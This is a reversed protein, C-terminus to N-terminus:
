PLVHPVSIVVTNPRELLLRRIRNATHNHLIRALLGRTVVMPLVVTITEDAGSQALDDVYARLPSVIARYPSEIVRLPMHNGWAEWEQRVRERDEEAAIHVGVVKGRILSGAYALTDLGAQNLAAVSVLAVHHDAVADRNLGPAINAVAVGRGLMSLRLRRQAFYRRWGRPAAEVLVTVRQNPGDALLRDVTGLLTKLTGSAEVPIVESDSLNSDIASTEAGPSEEGLSMVRGPHLTKLYALADPRAGDVGGAIILTHRIAAPSIGPRPLLAKGSRRYHARIRFFVFTMLPVLLVVLWAGYIFKTVATILLVVFTLAAGTGNLLIGKRWGPERRKWWRRVMGSQSLTFSAFVGIVYLNVLAEFSGQFVLILVLALLTLVLIGNSYSLRDGRQRFQHPLFNDRAMFFALRPFDSYATNAALMLILATTIQVYYFGFGTGLTAQNLKSILTPSADGPNPVLGYLHVLITIGIFMSIALFGLTTITTRANRWEPAEFAPVGDSIAEVGTLATCGSAFARLVLFVTLAETGHVVTVSPAVHAGNHIFKIIGALIMAYVGVIFLYPPVMFITGSERIGRLNGFLILVVFLVDLLVDYKGLGTAMSTLAAVGTVVSVAVTLVYDIMLSSGAIVGALAGLNDSAVIYSGGGKPYMKITQRYSLIVMAFLVSIAAAIALSIGFNNTGAALLVALMAGTAYAVSSIADSSLVALAKVKTLREHALRENSLPDGVVLTKVRVALLGLPGRARPVAATARVDGPGVARFRGKGAREVRVFRDGVHTGARVSRMTLGAAAADAPSDAPATSWGKGAERLAELREQNDPAEVPPTGAM